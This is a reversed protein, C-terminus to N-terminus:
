KQVHGVLILLSTCTCFSHKLVHLEENLKIKLPLSIDFSFLKMSIM